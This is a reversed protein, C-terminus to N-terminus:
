NFSDYLGINEYQVQHGDLSVYIKAYCQNKYVELKVKLLPLFLFSAFLVYKQLVGTVKKQM